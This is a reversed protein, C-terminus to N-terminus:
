TATGWVEGEQDLPRAGWVGFTRAQGFTPDLVVAQDEEEEHTFRGKEDKFTDTESWQKHSGGTERWEEKQCIENEPNQHGSESKEQCLRVQKHNNELAKAESQDDEATKEKEGGPTESRGEETSSHPHISSHIFAGM